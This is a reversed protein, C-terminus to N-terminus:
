RRLSCRHLLRSGGCPPRKGDQIGLAPVPAHDALASRGPALRAMRERHSVSASRAALSLASPLALSSASSSTPPDSLTSFRSSTALATVFGGPGPQASKTDLTLMSGAETSSLMAKKLSWTIGCSAPRAPSRRGACCPRGRTLDHRPRCSRRPDRRGQVGKRRGAFLAPRRRQGPPDGEALRRDPLDQECVHLLAPRDVSASLAARGPRAGRARRPMISRHGLEVLQGLDVVPGAAPLHAPLLIRGVDRGPQWLIPTAIRSTPTPVPTTASPSNRRPYGTIPSSTEGGISVPGPHPEPGHDHETVGGVHRQGGRRDCM